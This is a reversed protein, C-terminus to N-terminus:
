IELFFGCLENYLGVATISTDTIQLALETLDIPEQLTNGKVRTHNTNELCNHNYRSSDIDDDDDDDNTM